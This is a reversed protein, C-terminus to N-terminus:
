VDEFTIDKHQPNSQGKMIMTFLSMHNILIFSLNSARNSCFPVILYDPLVPRFFLNLTINYGPSNNIYEMLNSDYLSDM